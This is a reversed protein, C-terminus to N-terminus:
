VLAVKFGGSMLDTFVRGPDYKDRIRKLRDLNGAPYSEFVPQGKDAENLYYYSGAANLAKLPESVNANFERIFDDFLADGSERKWSYTQEFWFAPTEDLGQLSGPKTNTASLFKSTISNFALGITAGEIHAFTAKAAKFYTDHVLQMAERDAVIPLLHFRQRLGHAFGGREFAPRVAESYDALSFPFLSNSSNLPALIGGLFDRFLDPSPDHGNYFLTSAYEPGSSGSLYQAVPIISAKPDVHGNTAFNYVSDMFKDKVGSGYAPLGFMLSPAKITRLHFRTVLCFSNGGGQLAWFLDRHQNSANVQVVRGDALVCEYGQLNGNTSGMGYEYSYFPVGGGLLFGSVGVPGLRAGVVAVGTGNLKNYVDTWRLGAGVSLTKNDSSLALKDFNTSSILVGTSDISNATSIPMHGGGRMAFQVRLKKLSKVAFSLQIAKAPAFICGPSSWSTTSWPVQDEDMYGKDGPLYTLDPYENKLLACVHKARDIPPYHASSAAALLLSVFLFRM